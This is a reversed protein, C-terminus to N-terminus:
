RLVEIVNSTVLKEMTKVLRNERKTPVMTLITAVGKRGKTIMERITNKNTKGKEVINM